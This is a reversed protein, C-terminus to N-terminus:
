NREVHLWNFFRRLAYSRVISVVTLVAGIGVADSVSLKLGFWPLVLLNAGTAVGFGVLVNVLAEALSGRKSQGRLLRLYESHQIYIMERDLESM